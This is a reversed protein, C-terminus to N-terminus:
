NQIVCYHIPKNYNGIYYYKLLLYKTDSSLWRTNFNVQKLTYKQDEVVPALM